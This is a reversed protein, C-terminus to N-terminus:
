VTKAPIGLKDCLIKYRTLTWESGDLYARERVVAPEPDWVPFQDRTLDIETGDELRNFYHSIGVNMVRLLDGGLMDQVIMSTIACQGTSPLEPTYGGASTKEDWVKEMMARLTLATKIKEPVRLSSSNDLDASLVIFEPAPTPAIKAQESPLNGKIGHKGIITRTGDRKSHLSDSM